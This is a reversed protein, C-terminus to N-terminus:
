YICEAGNAEKAVIVEYLCIRDTINRRFYTIIPFFWEKNAPFTTLLHFFHLLYWPLIFFVCGNKVHILWLSDSSFSWSDNINYNGFQQMVTQELCRKNQLCTTVPLVACVKSMALVVKFLCLGTALYQM